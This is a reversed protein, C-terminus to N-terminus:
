FTLVQFQKKTSYQTIPLRRLSMSQPVM